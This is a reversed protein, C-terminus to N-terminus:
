LMYISMGVDSTSPEALQQIYLAGPVPDPVHYVNWLHHGNIKLVQSHM